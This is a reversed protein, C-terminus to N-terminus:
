TLKSRRLGFKLGKQCAKIRVLMQDIYRGKMCVDEGPLPNCIEASGEKLILTCDGHYIREENPKLIMTERESGLPVIDFSPSKPATTPVTPQPSDQM